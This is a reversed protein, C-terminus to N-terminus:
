ALTKWQRAEVPNLGHYLVGQRSSAMWNSVTDRWQLYHTTQKHAAAAAADVYVEHLVFRCPDNAQQLVDFRLNGPERISAQHNATNADIFDDIHGDKIHIHVLTVHM